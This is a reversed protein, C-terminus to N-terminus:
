ELTSTFVYHGSGVSLVARGVEQRLLKVGEAQALAKGSKAIPTQMRGPLHVEATTNAPIVVALTFWAGERQWRSEIRGHISRYSVAAHTLKGGPEPAILIKSYGPGDARIGGINEVMWQYVGALPCQSFSNLGPDQFGKEPTWGDWREWITTAGQKITFGWSPFTDQEILRYALDNRGIKALTLMLDKTGLFGTSLHGGRREIDEVLHAAALKQKPGDLLDFALALVYATQTDGKIRGDAAVYAKNFAARIQQFLAQYKAAEESKGLALAALSTLRASRAFYATFIVDKPTDANVSLWDGFCHFEAPPLRDPTCQKLRYDVLRTMGPYHRELLRRDGYVEYLTWPGIAGVDAWGPGGNDRVVKLPAVRPFEGDTRQGDELDVLWKTFFAQVDANLTAARMFVQADGTWGLREDRQPCDTPIDLYNSRQTWYINTHLRNLMPDSCTFSGCSPTDSGLAIGTITAPTPPDALGTVEVYQFGHFTFRPEWVETQSGRCFYTDTARATRLNATYITGDPNLREAFRLTIKRGPEGAVQLRAVGAFNQGLDLVYTGKKPETIRKPRFLGCVGVAPGPHHQVVPHLEAGTVVPSWASDDFAPANWGAQELRADYAEGMLFDAERIPGLSAKWAPGTGVDEFSGDVYEIHLQGRFRPKKGYNDRVGRWGLYSGYWGDALVAGLANAGVHLRDTVDYARYYVRKTYDTWGPDFRSENVRAGNLYVDCLGLATAYLTAQKVAKPLRFDKRLYIPPPLILATPPKAGPGSAPPADLRRWKDCGIWEAQWAGPELLGMSWLAPASWASPNDDKDWVQVKWFCRHHSTLPKGGYPIATTDSSAVKGSDWRDGQGRALMAQNSAVLIRYASQKQDRQGSEVIWSLRPQAVDLGLPNELYECRPLASQLAGALAPCSALLALLLALGNARRELSPPLKGRKRTPSVDKQKSEMSHIRSFSVRGTNFRIM